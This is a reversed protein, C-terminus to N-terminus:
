LFKLYVRCESDGFAVKSLGALLEQKEQETLRDMRKHHLKVTYERTGDQYFVKTMTVGANRYGRDELEERLVKVYNDEIEEIHENVHSLRKSETANVTLTMMTFVLCILGLTFFYFRYAKMM